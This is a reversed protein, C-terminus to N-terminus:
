PPSGPTGARLSPDTPTLLTRARAYAEHAERSDHSIVGVWQLVDALAHRLNVIAEEYAATCLREHDTRYALRHLAVRLHHALADRSPYPAQTAALAQHLWAADHSMDPDVSGLLERRMQAEVQDVWAFGEGPVREGDDRL